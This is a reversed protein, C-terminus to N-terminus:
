YNVFAEIIILFCLSCCCSSTASWPVSEIPFDYYKQKFLWKIGFQHLSTVELYSCSGRMGLVQVPCYQHLPKYFTIVHVTQSSPKFRHKNLPQKSDKAWWDPRLEVKIEGFLPWDYFYYCTLFWMNLVKGCFQVEFCTQVIVKFSWLCLM